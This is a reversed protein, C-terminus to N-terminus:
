SLRRYRTSVFKYNHRVQMAQQVFLLLGLSVLVDGVSISRPWLYPVFISDGLIALRPETILLQLAGWKAASLRAWEAALGGAAVPMAGGNAALALLNCGLGLGLIKFGPQNRNLHGWLLLVALSVMWVPKIWPLGESWWGRYVLVELAWPLCAAMIALPLWKVSVQRIRKLRGGRVRGILYGLILAEPIL